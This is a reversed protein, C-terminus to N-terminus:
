VVEVVTSLSVYIPASWSAFGTTRYRIADCTIVESGKAGSPGPSFPIEIRTASQWGRDTPITMHGVWSRTPGPFAILDNTARVSLEVEVPVVHVNSIEIVVKAEASDAVIIGSSPTKIHQTSISMRLSLPGAVGVNMHRSGRHSKAAGVLTTLQSALATVRRRASEALTLSDDLERRIIDIAPDMNGAALEDLAIVAEKDDAKHAKRILGRVGERMQELAQRMKEAEAGSVAILAEYDSRLRTMAEEARSDTADSVRVTSEAGASRLAEWLKDAPIAYAVGSSEEAIAVIMGWVINGLDDLVPSGSFGRKVTFGRASDKPHPM